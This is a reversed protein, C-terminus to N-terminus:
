EGNESVNWSFRIKRGNIKSCHTLSAMEQIRYACLDSTIWLYSLDTANQSLLTHTECRVPSLYRFVKRLSITSIPDSPKEEDRALLACDMYSFRILFVNEVRGSHSLFRISSPWRHWWNIYIKGRWGWSVALDSSFNEVSIVNMKSVCKM